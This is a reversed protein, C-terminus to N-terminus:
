RLPQVHLIQFRIQLERALRPLADNMKLADITARGTPTYGSCVGDPGIAFHDDWKERLPHFLPVPAGSIPYLAQVKDAKHLSCCPCQLVLNDLATKAQAARQFSMISM